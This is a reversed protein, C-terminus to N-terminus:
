AVHSRDSGAPHFLRELPAGPYTQGPPPSILFFTAALLALALVLATRSCAAAPDRAPTPLPLIEPAGSM